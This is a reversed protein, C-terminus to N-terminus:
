VSVTSPYIYAGDVTVNGLRGGYWNSLRGPYRALIDLVDKTTPNELDVLKVRFRDVWLQGMSGMTTLVSHYAAAIGNEGVEKSAIYLFWLGEESSKMWWAAAVDFGTERLKEVIKAGDNIQSEVLTGQDM